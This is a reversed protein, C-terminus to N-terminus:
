ELRINNEIVTRYACHLLSLVKGLGDRGKSSENVPAGQFIDNTSNGRQHKLKICFVLYDQVPLHHNSKSNSMYHKNFTKINNGPLSLVKILSKHLKFNHIVESQFIRIKSTYSSIRILSCKIISTKHGKPLRCTHFRQM